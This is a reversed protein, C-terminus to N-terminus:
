HRMTPDPERAAEQAAKALQQGIQFLAAELIGLSQRGGAQKMLVHLAILHDALRELDNRPPRADPQLPPTFDGLAGSAATDGDRAEELCTLSGLFGLFSRDPPGFSPVAGAAIWLCRGDRTLLRYKVHFPQETRVAEAVIDRVTERDDPHVARTWGYDTTEALSFGTLTEWEPSVYIAKGAANTVFIIIPGPATM